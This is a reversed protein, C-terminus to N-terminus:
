TMINLKSAKDCWACIKAGVTDTTTHKLFWGFKNLGVLISSWAAEETLSKLYGKNLGLEHLLSHKGALGFSVDVIFIILLFLFILLPLVVRLGYKKCVIKKYIKDSITNNNKLFDTYDLEKFIKKELHSYKKTEFTRSKNRMAVKHGSEIKSPFINLQKKKRSDDNENNSIDEKEHNGNIRIKEKLGLTSSDREQKYKVLLRYTRTYITKGHNCSEDLSKKLTRKKGM